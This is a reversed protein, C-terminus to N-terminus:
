LDEQRKNTSQLGYSFFKILGQLNKIEGSDKKSEVTLNAPKGRIQGLEGTFNDTVETMKKELREIGELKMCIEELVKHIPPCVRNDKYNSVGDM